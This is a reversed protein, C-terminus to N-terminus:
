RHGHFSHYGPAANHRFHNGVDPRFQRGYRDSYYFVGSPGWYGGYFPGYYDDYYGNYYGNYYVGAQYGPPGYGYGACATLAGAAGIAAILAIATAKM